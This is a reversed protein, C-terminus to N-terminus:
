FCSFLPDGPLEVGTMSGVIVEGGSGFREEGVGDDLVDVSLLIREVKLV